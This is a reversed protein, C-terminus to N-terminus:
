QIGLLIHFMFYYALLYFNLGDHVKFELPLFRVIFLFYTLSM